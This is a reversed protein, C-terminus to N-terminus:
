NRQDILCVKRFIIHLTKFKKLTEDHGYKQSINRDVIFFSLITKERDLL